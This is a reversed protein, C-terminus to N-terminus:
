VETKIPIAHLRWMGNQVDEWIRFKTWGTKKAERSCHETIALVRVREREYEPANSWLSLPIELIIVLM